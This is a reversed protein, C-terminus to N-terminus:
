DKELYTKTLHRDKGFFETGCVYHRECLITKGVVYLRASIDKGNAEKGFLVSQKAMSM